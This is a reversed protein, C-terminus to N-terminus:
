IRGNDIQTLADKLEQDNTSKYHWAISNEMFNVGSGKTTRAIVCHPKQSKKQFANKMEEFNHGNVECVEWGFSQWKEALPELQLTKEVTDMSQIGNADIVVILNALRHHAALLASEWTTGEDCEGDSIVVYIKGPENKIKKSLAMGLGFPLGHGLSGTSLPIHASVRHNVHGYLESDNSNFSEIQTQSIAGLSKLVSYLAAAAHGKSLIVVDEFIDKKSMKMSFLVSLIDIVSLCSGIHSAKAKHTMQLVLRRSKRAVESPEINVAFNHM